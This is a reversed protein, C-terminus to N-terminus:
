MNELEDFFSTEDSSSSKEAAPESKKPSDFDVAFDAAANGQNPTDTHSTSVAPSNEDPLIVKGDIFKWLRRGLKSLVYDEFKEAPKCDAEKKEIEDLTYLSREIEDQEEVTLDVFKGAARDYRCIPRQKGFKSADYRPGMPGKEAVLNFNAGTSWDLPNFGDIHGEEVDDYGDMVQKILTMIQRGYRYRFVKGETEPANDNRVIYVNSYFTQGAKPLLLENRHPDSRDPYKVYVAHNHECIPCYKGFKQLCDIGFGQTIHIRNEVFWKYENVNPPLFRMIVTTKGDKFTPTFVHEIAFSKREFRDTKEPVAEKVQNFFASMDRKIPM